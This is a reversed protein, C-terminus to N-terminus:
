DSTKIPHWVNGDWVYLGPLINDTTVRNVNYVILGTHETEKGIAGNIDSISNLTTLKVRPMGLGKDTTSNDVTPNVPNREKLDLLAGKNPEAHAGITVQANLETRHCFFLMIALCGVITRVQKSRIM